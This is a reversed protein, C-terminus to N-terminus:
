LSERLASEARLAAIYSLFLTSSATVGNTAKGKTQTNDGSQISAVAKPLSDSLLPWGQPNGILKEVGGESQSILFQLNNKVGQKKANIIQLGHSQKPDNRLPKRQADQKFQEAKAPDKFNVFAFGLNRRHKKSFPIYVFDCDKEPEVNFLQLHELLHPFGVSRSHPFNCLMVTTVPADDTTSRSEDAADTTSTNEAEPCEETNRKSFNMGDEHTRYSLRDAHSTLVLSLSSSGSESSRHTGNSSKHCSDGEKVPAMFVPQYRDLNSTSTRPSDPGESEFDGKPLLKAVQFGEAAPVVGNNNLNLDGGSNRSSCEFSNALSVLNRRNGHNRSFKPSSMRPSPSDWRGVSNSGTRFTFRDPSHDVMAHEMAYANRMKPSCNISFDDWTRNDAWSGYEMRARESFTTTTNEIM